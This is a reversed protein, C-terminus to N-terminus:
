AINRQYLAQTYKDTYTHERRHTTTHQQTRLGNHPIGDRISVGAHNVIIACDWLRWLGNIKGPLKGGSKADGGAPM